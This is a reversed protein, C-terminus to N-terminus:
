QFVVESITDPVPALVGRIRISTGDRTTIEQGDRAFLFSYARISIPEGLQDTIPDDNEDLIPEFVVQSLPDPNADWETVVTELDEAVIDLDEPTIKTEQRWAVAWMTHGKRAIATSFLNGAEIRDARSCAEAVPLGNELEYVIRLAISAAVDGPSQQNRRRDDGRKAVVIATWRFRGFVERTGRPELGDLGLCAVLVTPSNWAGMRKLEPLDFRGDHARCTVVGPLGSFRGVLADRLAIV